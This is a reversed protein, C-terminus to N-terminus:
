ESLRAKLAALEDDIRHDSELAAFEEDLSLDRALEEEAALRDEMQAIKGEMRDFASFAKSTDTRSMVDNLSSQAEARRQRAVLLQRKREAEEIKADLARLQTRLREVMSSHMSLQEQMGEALDSSANKRKLAERALDDREQKLAQEAKALWSQAENQQSNFDRELKKGEAIAQAVEMRAEYQAQRMDMLAQNIIKEPDEARTLMDNINSRLLLGIREFIGM